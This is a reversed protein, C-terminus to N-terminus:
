YASCSIDGIKSLMVKKGAVVSVNFNFPLEPNLTIEGIFLRLKVGKFIPIHRTPIHIRLQRVPYNAPLKMVESLLMLENFNFIRNEIFHNARYFAVQLSDSQYSQLAEQYCHFLIDIGKATKGLSKSLDIPISMQSTLVGCSTTLPLASDRHKVTKLSSRQQTKTANKSRNFIM